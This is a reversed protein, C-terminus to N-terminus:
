FYLLTWHFVAFGCPPCTIFMVNFNIQKNIQKNINLEHNIVEHIIESGDDAFTRM